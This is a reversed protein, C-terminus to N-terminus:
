STSGVDFGLVLLGSLSMTLGAVDARRRGTPGTATVARWYWGSGAVILVFEIGATAWPWRWLGFGLNPSVGWSTPWLPLDPRHVMLDLLWRSFAVSGLVLAARAGEASIFAVGFRASLALAGLM